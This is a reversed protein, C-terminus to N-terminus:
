YLHCSICLGSKSDDIRLLKRIGSRGHPDHCTTCELVATEKSKGFIPIRGKDGSVYFRKGEITINHNMTKPNFDLPSFKIPHHAMEVVDHCSECLLSQDPIVLAASGSDPGSSLHCFDCKSGPWIHVDNFTVRNGSPPAVTTEVAQADLTFSSFLSLLFFLSMSIFLKAM